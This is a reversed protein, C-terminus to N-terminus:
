ASYHCLLSAPQRKCRLDFQDLALVPLQTLIRFAVQSVRRCLALYLRAKEELRGCVLGTDGEREVFDARIKKDVEDRKKKDLARRSDADKEVVSWVIGALLEGAVDVNWLGHQLEVVVDAIKGKFVCDLNGLSEIGAIM